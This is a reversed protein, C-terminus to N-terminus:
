LDSEWLVEQQVLGRRTGRRQGPHAFMPSFPLWEAGARECVIVQGRLTQCWQALKNYDIDNKVYRSQSQYPPDVFWTAEIQSNLCTYPGHIIEWRAAARDRLITQKKRVWEQATHGFSGATHRPRESGQNFCFGMLAQHPGLPIKEKPPVITWALIEAESTQLLSKWAQIVQDYLDVLIVRRVRKKRVQYISYWGAGAFPEIVLPYRAAPYRSCTHGKGGYYSFM